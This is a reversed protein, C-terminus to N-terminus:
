LYRTNSEHETDELEKAYDDQDKWEVADDYADAWAALETEYPGIPDGDFLCGPKSTGWYFGPMAEDDNPDLDELKVEVVDYIFPLGLANPDKNM